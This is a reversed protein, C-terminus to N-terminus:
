NPDYLYVRNSSLKNEIIDAADLGVNNGSCDGLGLGWKWDGSSFSKNAKGIVSYQKLKLKNNEFGRNLIDSIVFFKNDDEISEYQSKLSAEFADFSMQLAIINFDGSSNTNLSVFSSDINYMDSHETNGSYQWRFAYKYNLAAEIYWITSDKKYNWKESEPYKPNERVLKMRNFFNIIKAETNDGGGQAGYIVENNNKDDQKVAEEKKCAQSVFIIALLIMIISLKQKM